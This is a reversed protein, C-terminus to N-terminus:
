GATTQSFAFGVGAAVSATAAVPVLGSVCFWGFQGVTFSSMAVGQPRASNATATPHATAQLEYAGSTLVSQLDCMSGMPITATAKAYIFEGYGWFSDVAAVCMGTRMRQTTDVAYVFNPQYLGIVTDIAAYNM